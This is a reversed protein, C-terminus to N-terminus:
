APRKRCGSVYKSVADDKPSAVSVAQTETNGSHPSEAKALSTLIIPLTGCTVVAGLIIMERCSLNM